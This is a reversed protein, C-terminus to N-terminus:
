GHYIADNTERIRTIDVNFFPAGAQEREIQQRIGDENGAQPYDARYWSSTSPMPTPSKERKIQVGSYSPGAVSSPLSTSTSTSSSSSRPSRPGHHCAGMVNSQFHLKLSHTKWSCREMRVRTLFVGGTLFNATVKALSILSSVWNQLTEWLEVLFLIATLVLVKM